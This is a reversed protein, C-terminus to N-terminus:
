SQLLARVVANWGAAINARNYGGGGVALLRGHGLRDALAALGTAAM